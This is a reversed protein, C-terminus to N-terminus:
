GCIPEHIPGDYPVCNGYTGDSQLQCILWSGNGLPQYCVPAKQHQSSSAVMSKFVARHAAVSPAAARKSRKKVAAKATSKKKAVRKAALATSRTSGKKGDKAM